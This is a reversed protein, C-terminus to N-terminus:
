QPSVARAISDCRYGRTLDGLTPPHTRGTAISTTRRTFSPAHAHRDRMARRGRRPEGGRARARRARRLTARERRHARSAVRPARADRGRHGCRRREVRRRSRRSRSPQRLGSSGRPRRRVPRLGRRSRSPRADPPVAQVPARTARAAPARTCRRWSGGTWGPEAARRRRRTRGWSRAGAGRRIADAGVASVHARPRRSRRTALTRSRARSRATVRPHGHPFHSRMSREDSILSRERETRPARGRGARNGTAGRARAHGPVLDPYRDSAGTKAGRGLADRHQPEEARAGRGQRVTVDGSAQVDLRALPRGDVPADDRQRARTENVAGASIGRPAERDRAVDSVRARMRVERALLAPADFAELREIDPQRACSARAGGVPLRPSGRRPSRHRTRDAPRTLAARRPATRTAIAAARTARRASASSLRPGPAPDARSSM